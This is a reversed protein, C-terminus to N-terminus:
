AERHDEVVRWGRVLDFAGLITPDGDHAQRGQDVVVRLEAAAEIERSAEAGRVHGLAALPDRTVEASGVAVLQERTPRLSRVRRRLGAVWRREWWGREVLARRLGRRSIYVDVPRGADVCLHRHISRLYPDRSARRWSRTLPPDNWGLRDVYAAEPEDIWIWARYRRESEGFDFGYDRYRYTEDDEEVFDEHYDKTVVPELMQRLM